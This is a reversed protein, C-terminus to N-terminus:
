NWTGFRAFVRNEDRHRGGVGAAWYAGAAAIMLSAATVFASIVSYKRATELQAATPTPLATVETAAATGTAAADTGAAIIDSPMQTATDVVAGLGASVLWAGLILAAGWVALGHVGDRISIEDASVTGSRRRMRGAIYAGVMVSSVATWVAWLALALLKAFASGDGEYPSITSLGVALGFTAFVSAVGASVVAGALIASWDTAPHPDAPLVSTQAHLGDGTLLVKEM